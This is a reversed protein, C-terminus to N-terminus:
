FRARIGIAPRMIHYPYFADRCSACTGEAFYPGFNVRRLVNQVQFYTSARAAGIAFNWEIALDLSSYSPM